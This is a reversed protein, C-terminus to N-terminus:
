IKKRKKSYKLPSMFQDENWSGLVFERERERVLQCVEPFTADCLDYFGPKKFHMRSMSYVSQIQIEKQKKM